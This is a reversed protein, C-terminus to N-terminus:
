MRTVISGCVPRFTFPKYAQCVNIGVLLMIRGINRAFDNKLIVIMTIMVRPYIGSHSLEELYRIMLFSSEMFHPFKSKM